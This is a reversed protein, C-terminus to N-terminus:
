PFSNFALALICLWLDPQSSLVENKVPSSGYCISGALAITFHVSHGTHGHHSGSLDKKSQQTFIRM